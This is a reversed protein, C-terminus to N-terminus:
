FTLVLRGRLGAAEMLRHADDAQEAPLARAVRLSVHGEEVLRRLRELNAHDRAYQPM